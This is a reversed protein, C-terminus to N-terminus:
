GSPACSTSASSGGLSLTSGEMGGLHGFISILRKVQDSHCVPCEVKTEMAGLRVLKEFKEGCDQCKYEYIPM